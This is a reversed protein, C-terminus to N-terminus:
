EMTYQFKWTLGLFGMSDRGNKGVLGCLFCPVNSLRSRERTGNNTFNYIRDITTAIVFGYEPLADSCDISDATTPIFDSPIIRLSLHFSLCM